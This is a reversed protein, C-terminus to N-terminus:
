VTVSVATVPHRVSTKSARKARAAGQRPLRRGKEATPARSASRRRQAARRARRTSRACGGIAQREPRANQRNATVAAYKAIEHARPPWVIPMRAHRSRTTSASPSANGHGRRAASREDCANRQRTRRQTEEPAKEIARLRPQCSMAARLTSTRDYFHHETTSSDRAITRAPADRRERRPRRARAPHGARDMELDVPEGTALTVSIERGQPPDKVARAPVAQLHPRVGGARHGASDVAAINRASRQPRQPIRGDILVAAATRPVNRTADM